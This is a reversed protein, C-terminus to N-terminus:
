RTGVSSSPSTAGSGSYALRDPQHEDANIQTFSKRYQSPSTGVQKRFHHRFTEPTKFGCNIAITDINAPSTELLQCAHRIRETTLWVQPSQGTSKKFHRILTRSSMHAMSAIDSITLPEALQTRLQDLVPALNNHAQAVPRKIFQAQGGDRHAPLVFRRAM